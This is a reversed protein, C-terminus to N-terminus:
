QFAYSEKMLILSIRNLFVGIARSTCASKREHTSHEALMQSPTPARYAVKVPRKRAHSQPRATLQQDRAIATM